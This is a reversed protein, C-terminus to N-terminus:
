GYVIEKKFQDFEKYKEFVDNIPEKSESFEFSGFQKSSEELTVRPHQVAMEEIRDESFDPYLTKLCLMMKELRRRYGKLECLHDIKFGSEAVQFPYKSFETGYHKYASGTIDRHYFDENQSGYEGFYHLGFKKSHINKWKTCRGKSIITKFDGAYSTMDVTWALAPPLDDKPGDRVIMDAHLFWAADGTMKEICKNFAGNYAVMDSPHFTPTDLIILKEHAYKEKIHHLLERTGDYSKADLAYIFEHVYSMAAMISYGIFDVENLVPGIVSIKTM